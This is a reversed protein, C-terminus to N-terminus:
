MKLVNGVSSTIILALGLNFSTVLYDGSDLAVDNKETSGDSLLAM